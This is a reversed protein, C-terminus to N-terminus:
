LKKLEKKYMFGRNGYVDYRTDFKIFGLSEYFGPAFNELTGVIILVCERKIAEIEALKVMHSGVGQKRYTKDVSIFDITLWGYETFGLLGGIIKDQQDKIVLNLDKRKHKGSSTDILTATHDRLIELVSTKDTESITESINYKLNNLM